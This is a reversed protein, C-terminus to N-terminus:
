NLAVGGLAARVGPQMSTRYLMARPVSGASYHEILASM